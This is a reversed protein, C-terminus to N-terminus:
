DMPGSPDGVGVEVYGPPPNGNLNLFDSVAASAMTSAATIDADSNSRPVIVASAADSSNGSADTLSVGILYVRGPDAGSREARLRLAGPEIDAADPSFLQGSGPHSSDPEDSYVITQLESAPCNDSVSATFGVDVLEHDPPYLLPVGVDLSLQPLEDDTVTVQFTCSATRQQNHTGDGVVSTCTTETVGVDYFSGSSPTCTVTAPDSPVPAPYNVTAGCQSPAATTEIDGPCDITTVYQTITGVGLYGSAVYRALLLDQYGNDASADVDGVMFIRDGRIAVGRVNADSGFDTIVKGDGSFSSDLSGDPLLRALTVRLPGLPNRRDFRTWGGLVISGDDQIALDRGRSEDDTSAFGIRARGGDGFTIDQLGNTLFRAAMFDYDSGPPTELWDELNGGNSTVGPMM